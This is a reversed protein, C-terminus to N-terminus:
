YAVKSIKTYYVNFYSYLSIFDTDSNTSFTITNSDYTGHEYLRNYLIETIPIRTRAFYGVAIINRDHRTKRAICLERRSLIYIFYYYYTFLTEPRKFFFVINDFFTTPGSVGSVFFFSFLWGTDTCRIYM